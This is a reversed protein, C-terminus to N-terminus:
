KSVMLSFALQLETIGVLLKKVLLNQIQINHGRATLDFKYKQNM